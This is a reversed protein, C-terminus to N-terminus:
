HGLQVLVRISDLATIAGTVGVLIWLGALRVRRLVAENARGRALSRVAVLVAQGGDLPPIPLVNLFGASCSFAAALLVVMWPGIDLLQGTQAIMGPLGVLPADLPAAAAHPLWAAVADVTMRIIDFLLSVGLQAAPVLGM